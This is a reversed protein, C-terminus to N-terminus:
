IRQVYM